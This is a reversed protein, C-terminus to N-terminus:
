WSVAPGTHGGRGGRIGAALDCTEPATACRWHVGNPPQHSGTLRPHTAPRILNVGAPHHTETRVPSLIRVIWAGRHLAEADHYYRAARSVRYDTHGARAEIAHIM